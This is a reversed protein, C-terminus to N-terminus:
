PVAHCLMADCPVVYCLSAHCSMASYPLACCLMAYCPTSSFARLHLSPSGTQAQVGRYMCVSADGHTIGHDLSFPWLSWAWGEM